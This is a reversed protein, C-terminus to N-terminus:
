AAEARDIAWERWEDSLEPAALMREALSHDSLQAKFVLVSTVGHDPRSLVTIEDGAQVEGEEIIRLYTGPRNAAAFRKVFKTDDMRLALKACPIRPESVELLATGVQWREGITANSADVGRTTLNEGFNGPVMEQGLEQAWWDYDERAYAYVAKDYGGHYRRDAQVDDGVHTGHLAVPGDVPQKWIATRIVRKGQQVERKQGTNVAEVSGTALPPTGEPM